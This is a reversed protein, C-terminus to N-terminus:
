LPLHRLGNTGPNYWTENEAVFDTAGRGVMKLWCAHGTKM